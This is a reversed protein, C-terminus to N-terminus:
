NQRITPWLVIFAFTDSYDIGVIHEFGRPILYAKKKQLSGDVRQKVKYIV